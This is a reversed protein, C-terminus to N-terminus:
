SWFEFDYSRELDATLEELTPKWIEAEADGKNDIIIFRKTPADWYQQYDKKIRMKVWTSKDPQTLPKAIDEISEKVQLEAIKMKVDQPLANYAEMIPKIAEAVKGLVEAMASSLSAFAKRVAERQEPTMDDTKM